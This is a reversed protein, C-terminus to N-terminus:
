GSEFFVSADNNPYKEACTTVTYENIILYVQTTCIRWKAAIQKAGMGSLVDKAVERKEQHDLKHNTKRRKTGWRLTM